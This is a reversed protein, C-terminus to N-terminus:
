CCIQQTSSPSTRTTEADFFSSFHLMWEFFTVKQTTPKVWFVEREDCIGMIYVAVGIYIDLVDTSTM